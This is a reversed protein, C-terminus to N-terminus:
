TLHKKLELNRMPHYSYNDAIEDIIPRSLERRKIAWEMILRATNEIFQYIM